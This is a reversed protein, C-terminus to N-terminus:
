PAGFLAAIREGIMIATAAPGRSPATPLISTDAVRLGTVGRVRGSQDTVAMPDGPPGMRCTGCTHIATSLHERAWANLRRDDALTMEDPNALRAGLAAFARTRTIEAAVRIAERMRRVDPETALYDYSIRPPLRASPSITRLTGRSDTRQVTIAFFLDGSEGEVGLAEPLPRLAPLIELPTGDGATFNLASQFLGPREHPVRSQWNLMIAPHDTFGKGVGPLDAVVPIGAASLEAAPGLGSLALLHPSKIAGACLVVEGAEILEGDATQVGIARTRDFVIRTVLTSGRVTLNPRGRRSDLYAIGTNIRMGDVANLPLPGYGPEGQDNKDPEAPYGLEACATYFTETVRHPRAIERYVPVPGAGGHVPTGGYTLDTEAQKYFPLCTEYAWQANGDAVWSDFDGRRARVFYAGNVTTSGGLIKGRVVSYSLEPTLSAPFSWSDPHGPMAGAMTGSDLLEPPFQRCDRGAEILLVSRSTRESLAAALPAGAAGAGVVVVDWGRV